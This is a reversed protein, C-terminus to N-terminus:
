RPTVARNRLALEAESREYRALKTQRVSTALAAIGFPLSAVVLGTGRPTVDQDIAQFVLGPLLTGFQLALLTRTTRGNRRLREAREFDGVAEVFADPSLPGSPGVAVLRRDKGRASEDVIHGWTSMQNKFARPQSQYTEFTLEASEDPPAEASALASWLLLLSM